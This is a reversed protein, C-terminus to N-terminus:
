VDLGELQLIRRFLWNVRTRVHGMVNVPKSCSSRPLISGLGEVALVRITERHTRLGRRSRSWPHVPVNPSTEM